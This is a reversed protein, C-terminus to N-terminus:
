EKDRNINAIFQELDSVGMAANAAIESESLPRSDIIINSGELRVSRVTNPSCLLSHCNELIKQDLDCLGMGGMIEEFSCDLMDGDVHGSAVARDTNLRISERLEPPATDIKHEYMKITERVLKVILETDIYKSM